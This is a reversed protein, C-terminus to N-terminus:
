EDSRAQKSALDRFLTMLSHNYKMQMTGLKWCHQQLGSGQCHTCTGGGDTMDVGGM